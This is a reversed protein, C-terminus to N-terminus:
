TPEAGMRVSSSSRRWNPSGSRYRLSSRQPPSSSGSRPGACLRRSRRCELSNECVIAVRDGPRLGFAILGSGFARAQQDLEGYTLGRYDRGIKMQFALKRERRRVAEELMAPITM